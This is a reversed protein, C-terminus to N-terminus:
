PTTRRAPAAEPPAYSRQWGKEHMCAAATEARRRANADYPIDMPPALDPGIGSCTLFIGSQTCSARNRAFVNGFQTTKEEYPFAQAAVAECHAIDAHFDSDTAGPKVWYDHGCGGLAFSLVLLRWPLM